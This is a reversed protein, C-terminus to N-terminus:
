SNFEDREGKGSPGEWVNGETAQRRGAMATKRDQKGTKESVKKQM